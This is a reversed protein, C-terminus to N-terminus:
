LSKAIDLVLSENKLEILKDLITLLFYLIHMEHLSLNNVRTSYFNNRHRQIVKYIYKKMKILFVIKNKNM